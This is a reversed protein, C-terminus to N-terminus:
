MEMPAALESAATEMQPDDDVECTAVAETELISEASTAADAGWAAAADEQAPAVPTLVAVAVPYSVDDAATPLPGMVSASPLARAALVTAVPLSSVRGDPLLPATSTSPVALPIAGNSGSSSAAVIAVAVKEGAEGDPLSRRRKGMM